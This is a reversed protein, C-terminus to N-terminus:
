PSLGKQVIALSTVYRDIVQRRKDIHESVLNRILKQLSEKATKEPADGLQLAVIRGELDKEANLLKGLLSRAQTDLVSPSNTSKSSEEAEALEDTFALKEPLDKLKTISTTLASNNTWADSLDSRLNRLRSTLNTFASAVANTYDSIV